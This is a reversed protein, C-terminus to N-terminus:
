FHVSMWDLGQYTKYKQIISEVDEITRHMECLKVTASGKIEWGGTVIHATVYRFSSKNEIENCCNDAETKDKFTCRLDLERHSDPSGYEVLSAKFDDIKEDDQYIQSIEDEDFFIIEGKKCTPCQDFEKLSANNFM